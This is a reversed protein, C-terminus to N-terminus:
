RGGYGSGHAALLKQAATMFHQPSTVTDGQNLHWNHTHTHLAAPPKVGEMQAMAAAGNQQLMKYFENYLAESIPRGKYMGSKLDAIIRSDLSKQAGANVATLQMQQGTESSGSSPLGLASRIAGGVTKFAGVIKSAISWISNFLSALHEVMSVITGLVRWWTHASAICKDIFEKVAHQNNTVGHLETAWHRVIKVLAPMADNAVELILKFVSGLWRSMVETEQAAGRILGSILKMNDPKTMMQAWWVFAGGIAQGLALFAPELPKLGKAMIVLAQEIGGFVAKEAPGFVEGLTKKLDKWATEFAVADSAGHRIAQRQALQAAAVQDQARVLNETATAVANVASLYDPYAKLGLHTYQNVTQQAQSQVAQADAVQQTADKQQQLATKVGLVDEKYQLLMEQFALKNSGVQTQGLNGGVQVNQSAGQLDSPSTGLGQLELDFSALTLRAQQIQQAASLAGLKADALQDEADHLANVANIQADLAQIRQRSENVEAQQLQTVAEKQSEYASKLNAAASALTTQGSVIDKIKDFVIGLLIVIPGLAALFAVGLAVVGILAEGLSVVLASIGAVVALVLPAAAAFSTVMQPLSSALGGIDTGLKSFITSAGSLAGEFMGGLLPIHGLLSGVGDTVKDVDKATKEFTIGLRAVDQAGDEGLHDLDSALSAIKSRSNEVQSAVSGIRQTLGLPTGTGSAEGEDSQAKLAALRAELLSLKAMEGSLNDSIRVRIEKEDPVLKLEAITEDIERKAQEADVRIEAEADQTGFKKIEDAVEQIAAKAEDPSGTLRLLISRAM